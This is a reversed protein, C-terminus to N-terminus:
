DDSPTNTGSHAQQKLIDSSAPREFLELHFEPAIAIVHDFIDSIIGEYLVWNKEASFTYIELPLGYENPDLQRVMTTLSHELKPHSKLYFELYKRFVGVNTLNRKNATHNDMQLANQATIETRKETIYDTLLSISQYHDLMEETCFRVSNMKINISRKIRRGKEENLNRWNKFSDSILAYTPITTITLDFNKVKITALNIEQVTGDAGYKEMTIWDGVAVMDNTALQISAMFGLLTDRFLLLLIASMAGLATLFYLPSKGTLVSFILIGFYLTLLIKTIQTYSNLPKDIFNDRRSLMNKLADLFSFVLRAIALILILDLVKRILGLEDPYLKLIDDIGISFVIIPLLIALKRFFKTEVLRDDWKTKTKKAMEAIQGRSIFRGVAYIILCVLLLIFLRLFIMSDSGSGIGTWSSILDEM